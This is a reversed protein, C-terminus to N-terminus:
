KKEKIQKLILKKYDKFNIGYFGETIVYKNLVQKMLAEAHKFELKKNIMDDVTFNIRCGYRDHINIEENDIGYINIDISCLLEKKIKKYNDINYENKNNYFTNDIWFEIFALKKDKYFNGNGELLEKNIDKIKVLTKIETKGKNTEQLKIPKFDSRTPIVWFGKSLDKKELKLRLKELNEKVEDLTYNESM